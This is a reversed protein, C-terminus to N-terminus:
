SPESTGAVGVSTSATKSGYSDDSTSVLIISFSGASDMNLLLDEVAKTSDGLDVDGDRGLLPNGKGFEVAVVVEAVAGGVLAVLRDQPEDLVRRFTVVLELHSKVFWAV